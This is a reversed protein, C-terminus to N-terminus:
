ANVYSDRKDQFEFNIKRFMIKEVIEFLDREFKQSINIPAPPPPPPPHKIGKSIM